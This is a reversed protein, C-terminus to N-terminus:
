KRKKNDGDEDPFNNLIKKAMIFNYVVCAILIGLGTYLGATTGMFPIYDSFAMLIVVSGEIIYTTGDITSFRRIQEQTSAATNRGAVTKKAIEYMGMCVAVIGIFVMLLQVLEM